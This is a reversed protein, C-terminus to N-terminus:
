YSDLIYDSTITEVINNNKYCKYVVNFYYSGKNKLRYTKSISYESFLNNWPVTFTKSYINGGGTKNIKLTVKVQDIMNDRLPNLTATMDANGTSDISFVESTTKTALYHPVFNNTNKMNTGGYCVSTCIVIGLCCIFVSKIYKM